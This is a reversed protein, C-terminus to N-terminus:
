RGLGLCKFDTFRCVRKIYVAVPKKLLEKAKDDVDDEYKVEMYDWGRKYGVTIDGIKFEKKNKIAEFQYTVEVPKGYEASFTAGLFMVEGLDYGKFLKSNVAGKLESLLNRYRTSIKDFVNSETFKTSEGPIDIGNVKEGDYNIAVTGAPADPPYKDIVELAATIHQTGGTTDYSFRGKYENPTDPMNTGGYTAIVKHDTENILEGYSISVLALGKYSRAVELYAAQLAADEYDTGSADVGLVLYQWEAGTYRGNIDMAGTWERLGQIIQTM